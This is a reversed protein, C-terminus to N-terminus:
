VQAYTNGTDDTVTPVSGGSSQVAVLVCNGSGTPSAFRIAYTNVFHTQTNSHSVHQVLAPPAGGSGATTFTFDASSVRNNSADVSVAQFHYLTSATLGSLTVSHTTALTANLASQSGYAATTGYNVQSNAPVNTTWTITAGTSTVATASVGSTTPPTAPNQSNNSAVLGACGSLCLVLPALLVGAFALLSRGRQRAPCVEIFM